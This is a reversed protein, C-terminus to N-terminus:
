EHVNRGQLWMTYAPPSAQKLYLLVSLPDSELRTQYTKESIHGALVVMTLIHQFTELLSSPIRYTDTSNGTRQYKM